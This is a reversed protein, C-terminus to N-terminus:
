LVTVLVSFAVGAGVAMGLGTLVRSRPRVRMALGGGLGSVAAAILGAGRYFCAGDGPSGLGVLECLRCFDPMADVTCFNVAQGFGLGAGGGLVQVADVLTVTVVVALVTGAGAVGGARQWSAPWRPVSRWAGYLLVVTAAAAIWVPLSLLLLNGGLASLLVSGPLVSLLAVSGVAGLLAAWEAPLPVGARGRRVWAYALYALLGLATLPGIGAVAMPSIRGLLALVLVAAGVVHFPRDDSGTRDDGREPTRPARAMDKGM